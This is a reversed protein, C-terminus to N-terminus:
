TTPFFNLNINLHKVDAKPKFWEPNLLIIKDVYPFTKSLINCISLNHYRQSFSHWLQSQYTRLLFFFFPFLWYAIVWCTVSLAFFFYSIFFFVPFLYIMHLSQSRLSIKLDSINWSSLCQSNRIWNWYISFSLHM